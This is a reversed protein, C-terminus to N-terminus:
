NNPTFLKVMQYAKNGGFTSIGDFKWSLDELYRREEVNQACKCVLKNKNDADVLQQTFQEDMKLCYLKFEMKSNFNKM